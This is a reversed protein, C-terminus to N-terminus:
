LGLRRKAVFVACTLLSITAVAKAVVKQWVDNAVALDQKSDEVFAKWNTNVSQILQQYIVNNEIQLQADQDQLSAVINLMETLKSLRTPQSETTSYNALMTNLQAMTPAIDKIVRFSFTKQGTYNVDDITASLTYNGCKTLDYVVQDDVSLVTEVYIDYNDKVMASVGSASNTVWSGDAFGVEVISNSIDLKGVTVPYQLQVDNAWQYQNAHVLEIVLTYEGAPVVGNVTSGSLIVNGLNDVLKASFAGATTIEPLYGVIQTTWDFLQIGSPSYTFNQTINGVTVKPLTVTLKGYNFQVNYNSNSHTAKIVFEGTRIKNAFNEETFYEEDQGPQSTLVKYSIGLDDTGIDEVVSGGFMSTLKQWSDTNFITFSQVDFTVVRPTITYVSHDGATYTITVNYNSTFDNQVKTASINYAGANTGDAKTMVVFDNANEGFVLQGNVVDVTLPSLASAYVSTADNVRLTVPRSVIQYKGQMNAFTISYNDDHCTGEIDYNGVVSQQTAKAKLTFITKGEDMQAISGSVSIYDMLQDNEMVISGYYVSIPNISVTLEIPTVTYIGTQVDGLIYNDTDVLQAGIDYTGVKNTKEWVPTVVQTLIDGSALTTGNALELKPTVFASAYVSTADLVNIDITRKTVTYTGNKFTIDYNTNNSTATIAYEDVVSSGNVNCSLTYVNTDGSAIGLESTVQSTLAVVADGYVSQKNDITVTIPRATISLTGYNWGNDAVVYNNNGAFEAKISYDGVTTNSIAVFQINGKLQQTLDVITEGDQYWVKITASSLDNAQRDYVKSISGIEVHIQRATIKYDGSVVTVAYNDNADKDAGNIKHTGVNVETPNALTVYDYIDDGNVLGYADSLPVYATPMVLNQGYISTANNIVVTVPRAVVQFSGNVFTVTYNDNIQQGVIPYSGVGTTGNVATTLSVVGGVLKDGNVTNGGTVKATLKGVNVTEGYIHGVINDITVTIPRPAVKYLGQGPTISQIFYNDNVLGVVTINYDGVGSATTANTALDFLQANKDTTAVNDVKALAYLEASTLVKEGYISSASDNANLTVKLGCKEIVFKGTNYTPKNYNNNGEFSSEITYGVLNASTQAIQCLNNKVQNVLLLEDQENASGEVVIEINSLDPVLGDYVKSGSGITVTVDRKTVEYLNTGDVASALKYNPNINTIALNYKGANAGATATTTVVFLSDKDDEVAGVVKALTYLEQQTKIAEGYVTSTADFTVTIPRQEIVYNAQTYSITYNKHTTQNFTIPYGASSADSETIEVFNQKALAMLEDVDALVANPVSLDVDLMTIGNGDYVKSGNGVQVTVALKNITFTGKTVSTVVYNSHEFTGDIQYQNVDLGNSVVLLTVYQALDETTSIGNLDFEVNAKSLESADITKGNYARSGTDGVSLTISRKIIEFTASSYQIGDVYVRLVYRGADKIEDVATADREITYSFNDVVNESLRETVSIIADVKVNDYQKGTTQDFLIEVIYSNNTVVIELMQWNSETVNFNSDNYSDLVVTYSGFPLVTDVIGNTIYAVISDGDKVAYVAKTADLQKDQWSMTANVTVNVESEYISSIQAMSVSIDRKLITFLGDTIGVLKYNGSNDVFHVTVTYDGINASNLGSVNRTVVFNEADSAQYLDDYYVSIDAINAVTVQEGDYVKSGNGVTINIPRKTIEYYNVNNAYEFSINYNDEMTDKSEITYKGVNSGKAAQHEVKYNLTEFTDQGVLSNVDKLTVAVKEINNGYISTASTVVLTINKANIQYSNKGFNDAFTVNYNDNIDSAVISYYGVDSVSTADDVTLLFLDQKNDFIVGTITVQEFLENTTAVSDGYTKTINGFTVTIPRKTITFEGTTYATVNYNSNGTFNSYITYSGVNVDAIAVFANRVAEILQTNDADNVAGNISVDVNNGLTPATKDYVKTGAGIAFTIDKPTITFLGYLVTFTYNTAGVISGGVTYSGVNASPTKVTYSISGEPLNNYAKEGADDTITYASGFISTDPLNGDYVKTLTSVIQVTLPRPKITYTGDTFIVYYNADTGVGTIAYDGVITGSAKTLTVLEELKHEAVLTGGTLQATLTQLNDEYTSVKDDIAVRITRQSVTLTAEVYSVNYHSDVNVTASITYSGVSPTYGVASAGDIFISISQEIAKEDASLANDITITPNIENGYDITLDSITITINRKTITFADDTTVIYNASNAITFNHTGITTETMTVIVDADSPAGETQFTESIVSGYEATLTGLVTIKIAKPAITYVSHTGQSYEFTVAYYGSIEGSKVATIQYTGANLSSSNRQVVVLKALTERQPDVFESGAKLTPAITQESEGYTHGGDPIVVTITKPTVAVGAVSLNYAYNTENHTYNGTCSLTATLGNTSDYVFSGVNVTVNNITQGGVTTAIATTTTDGYTAGSQLELAKYIDFYDNLSGLQANVFDLEAPTKGNTLADWEAKLAVAKAVLGDAGVTTLTGVNAQYTAMAQTYQYLTKSITVNHLSYSVVTAIASDDTPYVIDALAVFDDVRSGYYTLRGKIENNIYAGNVSDWQRVINITSDFEAGKIVKDLTVFGTGDFYATEDSAGVAVGGIHTRYLIAGTADMLVSVETSNNSDTLKGATNANLVGAGDVYVKVVTESDIAEGISIEKVPVIYKQNAEDWEYFTGSITTNVAVDVTGDSNVTSCDDGNFGKASAMTAHTLITKINNGSVSSLAKYTKGAVLNAFSDVTTVSNGNAISNRGIRAVLNIKATNDIAADNSNFSGKAAGQTFVLSLTAGSAVNIVGTNGTSQVIGGFTGNINFTGDIYLNGSASFPVHNNKLENANPYRLQSLKPAMALGDLVAFSAGSNVNFTGGEHVHLNAGPLLSFDLSSPITLTAGNAVNLEMSYPVTFNYEASDVNVTMLTIGFKKIQITLKLSGLTVEGGHFTTTLKGIDQFNYKLSGSETVKNLYKTEDYDVEIWAGESLNFLAGSKAIIAETAKNFEESAYISARVKVTAGYEIKQPCWINQFTYQNFPFVGSGNYDSTNSGGEYDALVFTVTTTSGDKANFLGNGKILGYIDAVGGNGITITGNNVIEGYYGSILGQVGSNTSGYTAAVILRGNVTLSGSSTINLQSYRYQSPNSAWTARDVNGGDACADGSSSFPVLLTMGAPIIVNDTVTAGDPTPIVVATGSSHEAVLESLTQYHYNGIRFDYYDKERIDAVISIDNNAAINISSSTSYPTGDVIWGYFQKGSAPTATLSIVSGTYVQDGSTLNGGAWAATITGNNDFASFEVTSMTVEEYEFSISSVSISDKRDTYNDNSCSTVGPCEKGERTTNSYFALYLTAVDNELDLPTVTVSSSQSATTQDVAVGNAQISEGTPDETPQGAVLQWYFTGGAITNVFYETYQYKMGFLHNSCQGTSTGNPTYTTMTTTFDFTGTAKITVKLVSWKSSGPAAKHTGSWSGTTGSVSYSGSGSFNSGNTVTFYPDDVAGTAANLPVDVSPSTTPTQATATTNTLALTLTIVMVLALIIIISSKKM